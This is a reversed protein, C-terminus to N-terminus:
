KLNDKVRTPFFDNSAWEACHETFAEFQARGILNNIADVLVPFSPCERLKRDRDYARWYAIFEKAQGVTLGPLLSEIAQWLPVTHFPAIRKLEQWLLCNDKCSEIQDYITM